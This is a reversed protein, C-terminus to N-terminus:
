PRACECMASGLATSDCGGATTPTCDEGMTEFMVNCSGGAAACVDNCTAAGLDIAFQCVSPSETCVRRYGSATGFLDECTQGRDLDSRDPLADPGADPMGGDTPDCSMMACDAPETCILRPLGLVCCGLSPGVTTTVDTRNTPFIVEECGYGVRRCDSDLLEAALGYAGPGLRGPSAIPVGEVVVATYSPRGTCGGDLVLARLVTGSTDISPDVVIGWSVARPDESCAVITVSVVLVVLFRLSM